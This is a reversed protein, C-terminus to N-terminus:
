NPCSHTFGFHRAFPEYATVTQRLTEALDGRHMRYEFNRFQMRAYGLVRGVLRALRGSEHFIVRYFQHRQASPLESDDLLMEAYLRIATIPTKLDHSVGSILAARADAMQGQRIGDRIALAVSAILLVIIAGSLPLLFESTHGPAASAPYVALVWYPLVGSFNVFLEGAPLAERTHLKVSVPVGMRHRAAGLEIRVADM